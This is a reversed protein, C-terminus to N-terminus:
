SDSGGRALKEFIELLEGSSVGKAKAEMFLEMQIVKWKEMFREKGQETIGAVRVRKRDITVFGELELLSYAKHVTHYNVSLDGALKRSSPLLGGRSLEGSAIASVIVSYIQLYLPEISNPDVSIIM